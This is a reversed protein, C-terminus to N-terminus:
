NWWRQLKGMANRPLATGFDFRDPRACAPLRKALENRIEIELRELGTDPDEPVVFARLRGNDLQLEAKAVVSLSSLVCRVDVLSVNTGGVQVVEDRRGDLRFSDNSEWILRDQLSLMTSEAIRIVGDGQRKLTTLLTFAEDIGARTGIGATETSGFIEIMRDVGLAEIAAWTEATSPGASMLGCVGPPISVGAAALREWHFPTAVVIDGSRVSNAVSLTSRGELDLSGLGAVNPALAGFLFGFMHHQPVLCLFRVGNGERSIGTNVEESDRIPNSTASCNSKRIPLQALQAQVECVLTEMRHTVRKPPGTSGSTSFTLLAVPGTRRLHEAVLDIWDGITRRVMLYDDIGTESLGFFWSVSSVLDIRSLSDFGLGEEDIGLAELDEGTLAPDRTRGIVDSPLRKERVLRDLEARILSLCVQRIVPRGLAPRGTTSQRDATVSADAMRMSNM